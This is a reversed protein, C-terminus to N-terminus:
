GAGRALTRTQNFSLYDVLALNVAVVGSSTFVLGASTERGSATPINTTLIQSGLVAGAMSYLIFDVQTAGSNVKVSCHYWTDITLTAITPTTSRVSNNSTKGVLVGTPQLELYAGDVADASTFVDLLGFRGTITAFSSPTRFVINIQEGGGIRIYNATTSYQYGSNATTSSRLLVVGPHDGDIVGAAPATTSTGSSVAGGIFSGQVVNTTLFDSSALLQTKRMSPELLTASGVESEKLFATYANVATAIAVRSEDAIVYLQGIKLGNLAALANLASRTGRKHRIDAM